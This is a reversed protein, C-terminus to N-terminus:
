ALRRLMDATDRERRADNAFIVATSVVDGGKEECISKMQRIARNGGMWPLPLQHTVFLSIKNGTLKPLQSLYKKMVGSLSFAWVPSAFVLRDFGEVSPTQTLQVRSMDGEPKANSVQIERIEAEAGTSKLKELLKQAARRTNGTNSYIIIATKM